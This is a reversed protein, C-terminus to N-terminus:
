VLLHSFIERVATALAPHLALLDERSRGENYFNIVIGEIGALVIALAMPEPPSKIAGRDSLRVLEELLLAGIAERYHKRSERVRQGAAGGLRELDVVVLPLSSLFIQLIQEIAAAVDEADGLDARIAELFADARESALAAVLDEKSEFFEYFSRTSMGAERVIELVSAGAYQRSEFVREAADILRRRQQEAPLRPRGRRKGPPTM